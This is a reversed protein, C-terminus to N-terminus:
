LVNHNFKIRPEIKRQKMSMMMCQDSVCLFLFCFNFRLPVMVESTKFMERRRGIHNPFAGLAEVDQYGALLLTSVLLYLFVLSSSFKKMTIFLASRM